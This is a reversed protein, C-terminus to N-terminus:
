RKRTTEGHPRSRTTEVHSGRVYEARYGDCWKRAESVPLDVETGAAWAGGVDVLFRVLVKTSM